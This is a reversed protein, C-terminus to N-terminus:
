IVSVIGFIIFGIYFVIYIIMAASTFLVKYGNHKVKEPFTVERKALKIIFKVLVVLSVIVFVWILLLYIGAVTEMNFQTAVDAATAISNNVVHLIIPALLSKTKIAIIGFMIGLLFAGAAQPINGHTLSFLLASAVIAFVQGKKSFVKILVGRFIFEEIVPAIVCVLLIIAITPFDFGTYSLELTPLPSGTANKMVSSLANVLLACLMNVTMCISILKIYGGFGVSEGGKFLSTVSIKSSRAFLLLPVANLAISLVMLLTFPIPMTMFYGGATLFPVLTDAFMDQYMFGGILLFVLPLIVIQLLITVILAMGLRNYEKRDERLLYKPSEFYNNEYEFM